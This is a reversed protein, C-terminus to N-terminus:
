KGLSGLREGCRVPQGASLPAFETAAPLCLVVTSGLLFRGIEAGPAVAINYDTDRVSRYPSRPGPWPTEISAVILAGVMVLAWPGQPGDFLCTLRENIAFLGPVGAATAANVSFLRGPLAITRRLQGALPAHIRHYNAPALYLTIFRGGDFDAAARRDGLLEAASYTIGKAQLLAGAEIRGYESVFGDVPSCLADAETAFPRTGPKLSRTFFDNFSEYDEAAEREAEALDIGYARQFARILPQALWPRDSAAFRGLLRSLGHQPLARQLAIFARSM